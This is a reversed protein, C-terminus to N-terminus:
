NKERRAIRENVRDLRKQQRPTIVNDIAKKQLRRQRLYLDALSEEPTTYYEDQHPQDARRRKRTRGLWVRQELNLKEDEPNYWPVKGGWESVLRLQKAEQPTFGPDEVEYQKTGGSSVWEDFTPPRSTANLALLRAAYSQLGASPPHGSLKQQQVAGSGGGGGQQSLSYATSGVTAAASVGAAVAGAVAACM